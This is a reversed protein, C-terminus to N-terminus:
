ELMNDPLVVSHMIAIEWWPPWDLLIVLISRKWNAFQAILYVKSKKRWDVRSAFPAVLDFRNWWHIIWTPPVSVCFLSRLRTPANKNISDSLKRWQRIGGVPSAYTRRTWSLFPFFLNLVLRWLNQLFSAPQHPKSIVDNARNFLKNGISHLSQPTTGLRCCRLEFSDVGVRLFNVFGLSIWSAPVEERMFDEGASIPLPFHKILNLENRKKAMEPRLQTM